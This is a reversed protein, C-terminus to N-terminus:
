QAPTSGGAVGRAIEQLQEFSLRLEQDFGMSRSGRPGCIKLRVLSLDIDKVKTVRGDLNVAGISTEPSRQLSEIFRRFNDLERRGTELARQSAEGKVSVAGILQAGDWEFFSVHAVRPENTDPDHFLVEFAM